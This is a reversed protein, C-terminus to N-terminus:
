GVCIFPVTLAQRFAMSDIGDGDLADDRSRKLHLVATAHNAGDPRETGERPSAFFLLSMITTYQDVILVGVCM